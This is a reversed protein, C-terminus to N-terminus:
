VDKVRMSGTPRGKEIEPEVLEISSLDPYKKSFNVEWDEGGSIVAGSAPHVRQGPLLVVNPLPPEAQNGTRLAKPKPPASPRSAIRQATPPAFASPVPVSAMPLPQRRPKSYSLDAPIAALSPLDPKRAISPPPPKEAFHGYGEATKKPSPQQSEDLLTRVRNQITSAKNFGSGNSPRGRGGDPQDAIRKRYEAAADAVRKEEQSLRRRELERKMEPPLDETEDLGSEHDSTGGTAESGTIPTLSVGHTHPKDPGPSPTRHRGAPTDGSGEFRRFADGFKGALISKTNSLSISPMSARKRHKSGNGGSRRRDKRKDSTESGEMTRLFDVDSAINTEEIAIEPQETEDRNSRDVDSSGRGKSTERDRLYDLDSEVHVSPPRPRATASKSRNITDGIELNSPRRGELSPRSSASPQPTTLTATPSKTRHVELLPSRQRPLLDSKLSAGATQASQSARPQSSSRHHDSPPFRFIPRQKIDPFSSGSLPPSPSTMTGISTYGPRNPVPQSQTVPAPRPETPNPVNLSASRSPVASAKAGTSPVTKPQVFAEDALAETVRKSLDQSMGKAPSSPLFPAKGNKEHLLSFDDLSPFRAALEDAAAARLPASTSDLAAFPDSVAGRM